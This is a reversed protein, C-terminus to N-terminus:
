SNRLFDKNYVNDERKYTNELEWSYLFLCAEEKISHTLFPLLSKRMIEDFSVHLSLIFIFVQWMSNNRTSLVLDTFTLIYKVM